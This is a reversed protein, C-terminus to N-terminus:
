ARRSKDDGACARDLWFSNKVEIVFQCGNYVYLIKLLKLMCAAGYKKLGRQYLLFLSFYYM